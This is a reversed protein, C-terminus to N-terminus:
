KGATASAGIEQPVGVKVSAQVLGKNYLNKLKIILPETVEQGKAVVLLGAKNELNQRLIMGIALQDVRCERIEHEESKLEVLAEFIRPDLDRHRKSLRHAAETKSVDLRVLEDFALAVRLISAGIRMDAMEQDAIDGEVPVDQNQYAIMWAIPEMRPIKALLDRAVKPHNDFLEKEDPTFDRHRAYAAEVTDPDLTVCGLQSMMGAVEFRWPNPLRLVSVIHRIYRRVRAARGFAAPNVISLVDTLVQISGQLTKELLEKEAAVLRYQMLGATFARGLTEKNCPKTLFRFISGENVARVATQIDANGTLMIRIAEPAVIKIRALLEVGDMEPMRMDSIVLAYPGTMEIAALAAAGGAATEIQFENRFLRQYGALVSGEDDVMLIKELM